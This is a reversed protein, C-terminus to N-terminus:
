SAEDKQRLKVISDNKQERTGLIRKGVREALEKGPDAGFHAYRQTTSVQTHGLVKGILALSAGGAVAFSAYSHRLDHLRTNGLKARTRVRQWAKQLGTAPMKSNTPAPFVVPSRGKKALRDNQASREALIAAAPANLPIAKEGTKSRAPPLKIVGHVLDVESWALESIEAKRAGTLLLLRIVDAHEKSLSREDQMATLTDLLKATEKDSLFRERKVAALKQVNTVPNADVLEQAVAWGYCSSLSVIAGRAISPGGRVVALGRKKASKERTATEGDRIQRQAKEIDARRLDGALINGLLPVIHRRLRSADHEWSVARKNPAAEPGDALWREILQAVTIARRRQEMREAKLAEARALPDGGAKVIGRLVEAQTRAADATWPAGHEGITMARQRGDAVYKLRYTMSGNPHVRLHFGRITGDFIDFREARPTLREILRNTINVKKTM